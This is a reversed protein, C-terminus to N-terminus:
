SRPKAGEDEACGGHEGHPLLEGDDAIEGIGDGAGQADPHGAETEFLCCQRWRQAAVPEIEM